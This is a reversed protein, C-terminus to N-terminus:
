SQGSCPLRRWWLISSLTFLIAGLYFWPEWPGLAELSFRGKSIHYTIQVISAAARGVLLATGVWAFLRVAPIQLRRGWPRVPALAIPVAFACAAAVVLDYALFLPKRFAASAKTADLGVYWGTAWAVHFAAFVLAWTAAAYAVWTSARGHHHM